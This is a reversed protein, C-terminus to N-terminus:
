QNRARYTVGWSGLIALAFLGWQLGTMANLAESLSAEALEASAGWVGVLYSIGAAAAAGLAKATRKVLPWVGPFNSM